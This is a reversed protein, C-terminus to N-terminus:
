VVESSKKGYKNLLGRLNLKKIKVIPKNKRETTTIKFTQKAYNM